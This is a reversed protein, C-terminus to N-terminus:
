LTSASSRATPKSATCTWPLSRICAKRWNKVGSMWPVRLRHARHDAGCEALVTVDYETCLGSYVTRWYSVKWGQVYHKASEVWVDAEWVELREHERTKTLERVWLGNSFSLGADLLRAETQQNPM